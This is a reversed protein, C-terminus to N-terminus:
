KIKNNSGIMSLNRSLSCCQFLKSGNKMAAMKSKIDAFNTMYQGQTVGFVKNIILAKDIM